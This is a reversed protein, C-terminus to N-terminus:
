SDIYDRLSSWVIHLDLGSEEAITMFREREDLEHHTKWLQWLQHDIEEECNRPRGSGSGQIKLACRRRSFEAAHMGFLRRMLILPAGMLMYIDELEKEERKLDLEYLQKKLAPTDISINLFNKARQVLSKQQSLSLQSLKCILEDTLANGKFHDAILNESTAVLFHAASECMKDEFYAM